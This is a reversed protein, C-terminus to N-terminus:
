ATCGPPRVGIRILWSRKNMQEVNLWHDVVLQQFMGVNAAEFSKGPKAIAPKCSMRWTGGPTRALSKARRRQQDAAAHDSLSSM